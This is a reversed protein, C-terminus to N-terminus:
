NLLYLNGLMDWDFYDSDRNMILIGTYGSSVLKKAEKIATLKSAHRTPKINYYAPAVVAYQYKNGMNIIIDYQDSAINYISGTGGIKKPITIQM